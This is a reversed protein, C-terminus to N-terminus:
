NASKTGTGGMGFTGQNIDFWVTLEEGAPELTVVAEFSQGQANGAFSLVLIEGDKTIDTVDQMPGMEPAGISAAVKGGMDTVELNMNFSGMDSTLALVWTGLFTRAEAVALQSQASAINPALFAGLLAATLTFARAHRRIKKM